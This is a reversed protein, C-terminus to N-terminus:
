DNDIEYKLITGTVADITYDYKIRNYKFEVEYELLGDDHDLKIKLKSVQAEALGAHNLATQKAAEQGIDATNAQMNNNRPNISVGSQEYDYKLINGTAGDITYEYEMGNYKFDVDYEPLGNDYDLKIKMNSVQAETLGAHTLATQKAAEQGIDAANAANNPVNAANNGVGTNQVPIQVNRYETDCKLVTGSYLDIEYEYEINGAMFEVEYYVPLKKDYELWSNCYRTDSEKVGAHTLAANKAAAEGIYLATDQTVPAQPIKKELTDATKTKKAPSSTNQEVAVGNNSAYAGISFGGVALLVAAMISITTILKTKKRFNMIAGLREKLQEASETLTVSALSNKYINNSKLSAILTDGYEGRAKDDLMHMVEEDCALECSKNMEKELLYAFPNFWHACAVIQMLWKYFMDRQRYHILEHAFIYPLEKDESKCDPLVIRPRFFGILMPSAILPNCSLEVRTKINLKEECDSLLNLIKIDSVDTNGAKIYHIFGQYVTIKRVFLILAMALWVFFLGLYVSQPNRTIASATMNENELAQTQANEQVQAQAQEQAQVHAQKAENDNAQAPINPSATIENVIAATDFKEFLNGVVANDPTFPLLFRLAAIIWIYYQWRKSFKGKYLPKLGLILLLLLTGSVSLSLLIKMFEHM